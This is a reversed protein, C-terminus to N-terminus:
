LVSMCLKFSYKNFDYFRCSWDLHTSGTFKFGRRLNNLDKPLLMSTKCGAAGFGDPVFNTVFSMDRQFWLWFVCKVIFMSADVWTKLNKVTAHNLDRNKQSTGGHWQTILEWYRLSAMNRQFTLFLSADCGLLIFDWAQAQLVSVLINLVWKGHDRWATKRKTRWQEVTRVLEKGISWQLQRRCVLFHIM